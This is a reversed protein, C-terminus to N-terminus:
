QAACVLLWWDIRNDSALRVEPDFFTSFTLKDTKNCLEPYTEMMLKVVSEKLDKVDTVDLV